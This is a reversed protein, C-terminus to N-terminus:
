PTVAKGPQALLWAVEGVEALGAAETGGGGGALELSSGRGSELGEGVRGALAGPCLVLGHSSCAVGVVLLRGGEECQQSIL